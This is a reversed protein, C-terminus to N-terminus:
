WMILVHYKEFIAPDVGNQKTLEPYEEYSPWETCFSCDWSRVIKRLDAMPLECNAFEFLAQTKGTKAVERMRSIMTQLHADYKNSLEMLIRREKDKVCMMSLTRLEDGLPQDSYQPSQM